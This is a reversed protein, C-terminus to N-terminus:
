KFLHSNLKLFVHMELLKEMGNRRDATLMGCLCVRLFDNKGEKIKRRRGSPNLPIARAM